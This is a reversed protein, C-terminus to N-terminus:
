PRASRHVHVLHAVFRDAGFTFAALCLGTLLDVVLHQRLALASWCIIAAGALWAWALEASKGRVISLACLASIAVHLSPVCNKSTDLAPLWRLVGDFAGARDHALFYPDIRTPWLLFIVFATMASAAITRALSLLHREEVQWFTALIFPFFLLYPLLAWVTFDVSMDFETPYITYAPGAVAAAGYYLTGTFAISGAGLALRRASSYAAQVTARSM